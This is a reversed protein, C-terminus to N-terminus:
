ARRAKVIVHSRTLTRGGEELFTVYRFWRGDSRWRDEHSIAAALAEEVTRFERVDTEISLHEVRLGSEACLRRVRQEDYAFRSRRGTECWHDVHFGVCAFAGGPRLSRGANEVLRDSMFLHAVVGDPEARVGPALDRFGSLADADAVVFEVNALRALSAHERAAQIAGADRDVGIVRRALPALALAVRGGGTGVDVVTADGLPEELVLRWFTENVGAPAGARETDDLRRASM